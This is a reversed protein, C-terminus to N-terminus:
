KAERLVVGHLDCVDAGPRGPLDAIAGAVISDIGDTELAQPTLFICARLGRDESRHLGFVLGETSALDDNNGLYVIVAQEEEDTVGERVFLQDDDGWRVLRGLRGQSPFEEQAELRENAAAFTLPEGNFVFASLQDALYGAGTARDPDDFWEDLMVLGVVLGTERREIFTDAIGVSLGTTLFDALQAAEETTAGDRLFVGIPGYKTYEGEITLQPPLFYLTAFLLALFPLGLLAGYTAGLPPQEAANLSALEDRFATKTLKVAAVVLVIGFASGGPGLDISIALSLIAVTIAAGAVFWLVARSTRGLRYDNIALALGGAIPTGVFTAAGVGEPSFIRRKPDRIPSTQQESEAAIHVDPQPTPEPPNM